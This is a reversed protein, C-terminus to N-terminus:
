NRPSESEGSYGTPRHAAARPWLAERKSLRYRNQAIHWRFPKVLRHAKHLLPFQNM